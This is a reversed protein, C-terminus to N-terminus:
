SHEPQAGQVWEGREHRGESGKGSEMVVKARAGADGAEERQKVHELLATSQQADSRPTATVLTRHALAYRMQGMQPPTCLGRATAFTRAGRPIMTRLLLPTSM